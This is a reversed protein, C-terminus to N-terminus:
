FVSDNVAVRFLEATDCWTIIIIQMGKSMSVSLLAEHNILKDVSLENM